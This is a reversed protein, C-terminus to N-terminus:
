QSQELEEQRINNIIERYLAPRITRHLEILKRSLSFTPNTNYGSALEYIVDEPTDTYLAIGSLNYEETVLIDHIICRIFKIELMADEKEISLKLIQFYDKNQKKIAKKLKKCVRVFLEAELFQLKEKSFQHPHINLLLYLPPIACM